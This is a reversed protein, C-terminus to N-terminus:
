APMLSQETQEKAQYPHPRRLTDEWTFLPNREGRAVLVAFSLHYFAERDALLSPLGIKSRYNDEANILSSLILPRFVLTKCFNHPFQPPAASQELARCIDDVAPTPAAAGTPESAPSSHASEMNNPTAPIAAAQENSPANALALACALLPGAIRLMATNTRRCCFVRPSPVTGGDLSAALAIRLVCSRTPM